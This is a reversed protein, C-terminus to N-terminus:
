EDLKIEIPVAPSLWEYGPRVKQLIEKAREKDEEVARGIGSLDDGKIFVGVRAGEGRLQRWWFGDAGTYVMQDERVYNVPIDEGDPLTLIMVTEALEGQPNARLEAMDKETSACGALVTASVAFVFVRVKNMLM